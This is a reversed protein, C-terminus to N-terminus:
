ISELSTIEKIEPEIDAREVLDLAFYCYSSSRELKSTKQRQILNGM